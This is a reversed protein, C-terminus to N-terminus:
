RKIIEVLEFEGGDVIYVCLNRSKLRGRKVAATLMRKRRRRLLLLRRRRRRRKATGSAKVPRAVNGRVNEERDRTVGFHNAFLRLM